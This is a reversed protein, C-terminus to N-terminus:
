YYLRMAGKIVVAGTETNVSKLIYESGGGLENVFQENQQAHWLTGRRDRVTVRGGRSISVLTLGEKTDSRRAPSLTVEYFETTHFVGRDTVCGSLALLGVVLLHLSIAKM